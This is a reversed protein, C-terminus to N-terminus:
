YKNSDKCEYTNQIHKAGLENLANILYFNNPNVNVTFHKSSVSSQSPFPRHLSFILKLSGLYDDKNLTILNIGINNEFTIYITGIIQGDKEAFYWFRYPNNEVFTCHETYTPMYTHSINFKRSDLLDYLIKLDKKSKQNIEKLAYM